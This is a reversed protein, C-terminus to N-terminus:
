LKDGKKELAPSNGTNGHYPGHNWATPFPQHHAGEHYYRSQQIQDATMNSGPVKMSSVSIRIDKFFYGVRYFVCLVQLNILYKDM